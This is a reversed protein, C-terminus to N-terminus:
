LEGSPVIPLRLRVTTGEGIHGSVECSGGLQRARTMMLAIGLHGDRHRLYTSDEAGRGDDAIEVFLERDDHSSSVTITVNTAGSHKRANVIAEQSLRFATSLLEPNGDISVEGHLQVSVGTGRFIKEARSRLAQGFGLGELDPPSLRFMVTRLEAITNVVLDEARRVLAGVDAISPQRAETANALRDVMAGLQMSLSTLDQVPGDHLDEALRGRERQEAVALEAALEARAEESALRESIDAVVTVFGDISGDTAYLAVTSGFVTRIDGAAGVIRNQRRSLTPAGSRLTEFDHLVGDREDAHVLELISRAHISDDDWGMTRRGAPNVYQMVGNRDSMAILERTNEVIARLSAEERRRTSVDDAHVIVFPGVPSLRVHLWQSLVASRRADYEESIAQRTRFCREILAMLGGTRHEVLSYFRAGVVDDLARGFLRAIGENANEFVADVVNGEVDVIPRLLASATLSTAIEAALLRGLLASQEEAALEPSRDTVAVALLGDFPVIRYEAQTASIDPSISRTLRRVVRGENHAEALDSRFGTGYPPTVSSMLAGVIDKPERRLLAAGADNVFLIRYDSIPSGVPELIYQSDLDAKTLADWWRAPDHSTAM